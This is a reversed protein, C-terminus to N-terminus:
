RRRVTVTISGSSLRAGAIEEGAELAEKARRRNLVPKLDFFQAPVQAEEEVILSPPRETLSITAAPRQLSNCQLLMLAQEIIARRSKKREEFRHLRAAMTDKAAKLGQILADDCSDADLMCDLAQMLDTEGEALIVMIDPDDLAEHHLEITERLLSLVRMQDQADLEHQRRKRNRRADPPSANSPAIQCNHAHEINMEDSM